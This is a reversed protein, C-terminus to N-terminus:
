GGRHSTLGHGSGSEAKECSARGGSRAFEELGEHKWESPSVVVEASRGQDSSVLGAPRRTSLDSWKM